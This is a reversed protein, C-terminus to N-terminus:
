LNLPIQQLVRAGSAVNFHPSPPRLFPFSVRPISVANIPGGLQLERYKRGDM